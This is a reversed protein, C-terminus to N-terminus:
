LLRANKADGQSHNNHSLEFVLCRYKDGALEFWTEGTETFGYSRYFSLAQPNNDACKLWLAESYSSVIYDMLAKGIGSGQFKPLMYITEIEHKRDESNSVLAYGVIGFATEAVLVFNRGIEKKISAPTFRKLIYKSYVDNMGEPAYTNVWTTIAVSAINTADEETARRINM